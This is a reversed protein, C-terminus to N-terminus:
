AAELCASLEASVGYKRQLLHMHSYPEASRISDPCTSFTQLFEPHDSKHVCCPIFFCQFVCLLCQGLRRSLKHHYAHTHQWSYWPIDAACNIPWSRSRGGGWRLPNTATTFTDTCFVELQTTCTHSDFQLYLGSRIRQVKDDPWSQFCRLHVLQLDTHKNHVQRHFCM